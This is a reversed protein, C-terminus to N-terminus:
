LHAVKKLIEGIVPRPRQSSRSSQSLNIRDDTHATKNCSAPPTNVGRGQAEAPFYFDYQIKKSIPQLTMTRLLNNPLSVSCVSHDRASARLRLAKQLLDTYQNISMQPPFRDPLSDRGLAVLLDVAGLM